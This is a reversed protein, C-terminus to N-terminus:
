IARKIINSYDDNFVYEHKSDYNHLEWWWQKILNRQREDIPYVGAKLERMAKLMKDAEILQKPRNEQLM